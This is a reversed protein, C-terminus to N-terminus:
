ECGGCILPFAVATSLTRSPAFTEPLSPLGMQVRLRQLLHSRLHRGELVLGWLCAVVQSEALREHFWQWRGGDSSAAIISTTNGKSSPSVLRRLLDTWCVVDRLSSGTAFVFSDFRRQGGMRLSVSLSFVALGWLEAHVRVMPRTSSHHLVHQRRFRANAFGEVRPFSLCIAPLRHTTSFRRGFQQQGFRQPVFVAVGSLIRSDSWMHLSMYITLKVGAMKLLHLVTSWRGDDWVVANGFVAWVAM